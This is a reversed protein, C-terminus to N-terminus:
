TDPRAQQWSQGGRWNHAAPLNKVVSTGSLPNTFNSTLTFPSSSAIFGPYFFLNPHLSTFSRSASCKSFVSPIKACRCFLPRFYLPLLALTLLTSPTLVRDFGLPKRQATTVLTASLQFRDTISFSLTHTNPDGLTVRSDIM